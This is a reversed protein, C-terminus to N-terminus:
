GPQLSECPLRRRADGALRCVADHQVRGRWEGLAERLAEVDGDLGRLHRDTTSLSSHGLAMQLMKESVQSQVTRVAFGHRFSHAPLRRGLIEHSAEALQRSLCDRVMQEGGRGPVVYGTAVELRSAAAHIATGLRRSPVPLLRVKNRKGQVRIVENVPDVDEWTLGRVECERLGADARLLLAPRLKPKRAPSEYLAQVDDVEAVKPQTPMAGINKPLDEYIDKRQTRCFSRLAQLYTNRTADSCERASCEGLWGMLGFITWDEAAGLAERVQGLVSAYLALTRPSLSERAVSLWVEIRDM